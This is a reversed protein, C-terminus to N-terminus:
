VYKAIVRLNLISIEHFLLCVLIGTKGPHRSITIQEVEKPQPKAAELPIPIFELVPM